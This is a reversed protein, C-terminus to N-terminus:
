VHALVEDSSIVKGREFKIIKDAVHFYRDDHTIVVVTKGCNKMFALFDNYFYERFHPDQEAAWEDFIYIEADDFYSVLLALRKKQGESLEITSLKGNEVTVKDSLQMKDIFDAILIDDVEKGHKNIVKDFLFYDSFITSFYKNYWEIKDRSLPIDNLLIKGDTPEYLGTLLKAATTKGSGNGGVFFVIDGKKLNLDFPGFEFKESVENNEYKYTISKISLNKFVSFDTKTSQRAKHEFQLKKLRRIAVSAQAFNQWSNMLFIIPGMIYFVVIIFPLLDISLGEFLIRSIFIVSGIALFLMGANWSNALTFYFAAKGTTTRYDNSIAVLDQNHFQTQRKSNFNLEKFGDIVSKYSEFLTDQLERRKSFQDTGRKIIFFRSVLIGCVLFGLVTLFLGVSMTSLYVLGLLVITANYVLIPIVGLWNNIVTIDDTLTTYLSHPGLKELQEYSFNAISTTLKERLDFVIKASLLALLYQSLFMFGILLFLVWWYYVIASMLNEIQVAYSTALKLLLINAGGSLASIGSILAIKGKNEEILELIM